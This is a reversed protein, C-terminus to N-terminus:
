GGRVYRSGMAVDNEKLAEILKPVVEPAQSLDADMQVVGECYNHVAWRLGPRNADASGKQETRSVLHIKDEERSSAPGRDGSGGPSEDGVILIHADPCRERSAPILVEM